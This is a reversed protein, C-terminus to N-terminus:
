AQAEASNVIPNHADGNQYPSIVVTGDPFKVADITCETPITVPVGLLLHIKNAWEINLGPERKAKQTMAQLHALHLAYVEVRDLPHLGDFTGAMVHQMFDMLQQETGYKDIDQMTAGAVYHYWNKQKGLGGPQRSAEEMVQRGYQKIADRCMLY